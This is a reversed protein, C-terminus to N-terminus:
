DSLLCDLLVMMPLKKASQSELIRPSQDWSRCANLVKIRDDDECGTSCGTMLNICQSKGKIKSTLTIYGKLHTQWIHYTTHSPLTHGDHCISLPIKSEIDGFFQCPLCVRCMWM